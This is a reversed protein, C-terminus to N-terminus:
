RVNGIEIPNHSAEVLCGLQAEPIGLLGLVDFKTGDAVVIFIVIDTVPSQLEGPLGNEDGETCYSVYELVLESTACNKLGEISQMTAATMSWRFIAWLGILTTM